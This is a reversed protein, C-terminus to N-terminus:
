KSQRVQSRVVAHAIPCASCKRPACLQRDLHLLGQHGREGLGRLRVGGTVQNMARRAPQTWETHPLGIWERMVADELAANDEIVAQAHIIPLVVSATIATARGAGLGPHWPRTTLDRLLQPTHEGALVCELMPVLPDGGTRSLLTALQMIRYAPHNAPHVRTVQWSIAPVTDDAFAPASGQWSREIRYQDEPLIGAAHADAPALPLFGALGLLVGVLWTDLQDQQKLGPHRIIGYRLVLEALHEMPARNASYGFGGILARLMIAEVGHEIIDAQYHASKAHFRQDGLAHIAKTVTAPEHASLDAACISGGLEAWIDPLRTDIAFLAEDPVTLVATPVRTGDARRVSDDDNVRVIHLVVNNYGPDLHHGHTVWESARNHIEVDGSVLKGDGFDLMAGSFDPGYGHSWSGHYVIRATRGDTTLVDRQLGANWAASMALERPSSIVKRTDNETYANQAM